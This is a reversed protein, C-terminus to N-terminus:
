CPMERVRLEQPWESPNTSVKGLPYQKVYCPVGAAKCQQVVDYFWQYLPVRRKPGSECGLIVWDIRAHPKGSITEKIKHFAVSKALDIPGLMPEISLYHKGPVQLLEPIKTDADEQDTISVGNHIHSLPWDRAPDKARYDLGFYDGCAESVRDARCRHHADYSFWELMRMPQKTLTFYTHQPAMAMAAYVRDIWDFNVQEDFLDGMFCVGIRRPKRWHLFKDLRDSHFVVQSFPLIEPWDDHLAPFRKVMDRAWCHAKCGKGSCGTVPNWTEDLYSIGTSM